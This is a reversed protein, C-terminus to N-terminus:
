ARFTYPMYGGAPSLLGKGRRKAKHKRKIKGGAPRLLGKARYRPLMRGGIKNKYIKKFRGGVKLPSIPLKSFSIDEIPINNFTSGPITPTFASEQLIKPLNTNIPIIKPLNSPKIGTYKPRLINRPKNIFMGKTLYAQDPMKAGPVLLMGCGTYPRAMYLSALGKGAKHVTTPKIHVIKRGKKTHVVKNYGKRHVLQGGTTYPRKMYMSALGKGAKHVTTPHIYKIKPGGITHVVKQFGKRHHAKGQGLPRFYVRRVANGKHVRGGLARVIPGILSGLIPINGIIDAAAGRGRRRNLYPNRALKVISSLPLNGGKNRKRLLRRRKRLGNGKMQKAQQAIGMIGSIASLIAPVGMMAAMPLFAM